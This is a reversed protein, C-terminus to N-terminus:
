PGLERLLIPELSGRRLWLRLFPVGPIAEVTPGRLAAGWRELVEIMQVATVHTGLAEMRLRQAAAVVEGPFNVTRIPDSMPHQVRLPGKGPQRSTAAVELNPKRC